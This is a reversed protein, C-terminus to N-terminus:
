APGITLGLRGLNRAVPGALAAEVLPGYREPGLVGWSQEVDTAPGTRSRYAARIREAYGGLREGLWARGPDGTLALLEELAAWGFAAHRAEDVVIRDVVQRAEPNLPLQQIHRFVDLAVAESLAYEDAAVALARWLLPQDPEQPLSLWVDPVPAPAGDGGAARFLGYCREAHDLEDAAVRQAQRVLGPSRGLQLLWWAYQAAVTASRYESATRLAWVRRVRALGDPDDPAEPAAGGESM